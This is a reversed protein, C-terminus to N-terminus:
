PTAASSTVPLTSIVVTHWPKNELPQVDAATASRPKKPADVLQRNELEHRTKEKNECLLEHEVHKLCLLAEDVSERCTRIRRLIKGLLFPESTHLIAPEQTSLTIAGLDV